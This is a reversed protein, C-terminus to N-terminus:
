VVPSVDRSIALPPSHGSGVWLQSILLYRRRTWHLTHKATLHKARRILRVMGISCIWFHYGCSRTVCGVFVAAAGMRSRLPRLFSPASLACFVLWGPKREVCGADIRIRSELIISVIRTGCFGNAVVSLCLSM